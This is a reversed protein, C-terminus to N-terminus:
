KLFIRMVDDVQGFQQKKRENIKNQTSQVHHPGLCFTQTWHQPKYTLTSHQLTASAYSLVFVKNSGLNSIFCSQFQLM